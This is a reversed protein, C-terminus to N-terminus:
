FKSKYDFNNSGSNNLVLKLRPLFSSYINLILDNDIQNWCLKLLEFMEAKNKPLSQKKKIRNDIEENKRRELLSWANEIPNLDPSRAPWDCIEIKDRALIDYISEKEPDKKYTKHISANDQVFM